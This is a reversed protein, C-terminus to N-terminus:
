KPNSIKRKNKGCRISLNYIVVRLFILLKWKIINKIIPIIIDLRKPKFEITLAFKINIGAIRKLIIKIKKALIPFKVTWLINGINPLPNTVVKM